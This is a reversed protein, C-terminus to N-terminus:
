LMLEAVKNAGMGDVLAYANQSMKKLVQKDHFLGALIKNLDASTFNVSEKLFFAVGKSELSKAIEDQNKALSFTISPLAMACREWSTAGSAGIALDAIIMLKAMEETQVHCLYGYENCLKQIDEKMPHQTGIVVNVDFKHETIASLATIAKETYNKEDVGGFNVLINKIVGSRIKCYKRAEQFEDRLLAYTPGLLLNCDKSVKGEYRSKMDEYYNQDLLVDCDHTRDAIDDIVMINKTYPKLKQHWRYDLAYHDVVVWDMMVDGILQVTANADDVQSVGLWAAHALDDLNTNKKYDLVKLIFGANSILTELDSTLKQCIFIIEVNTKQLAKALTLCRMLHGTGIQSSTDTRFIVKM